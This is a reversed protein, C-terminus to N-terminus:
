KWGGPQRLQTTRWALFIVQSSLNREIGFRLRQLKKNKVLAEGLLAAGADKLDNNDLVIATLTENAALCTALESIADESM